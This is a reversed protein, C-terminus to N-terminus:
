NNRFYSEKIRNELNNHAIDAYKDKLWQKFNKDRYLKYMDLKNNLWLNELSKIYKYENTTKNTAFRFSDNGFKLNCLYEYVDKINEEVEYFSYEKLDDFYYQFTVNNLM